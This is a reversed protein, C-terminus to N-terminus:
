SDRWDDEEPPQYIAETMKEMPNRSTKGDPSIFYSNPEPRVFDARDISGKTGFRMMGARWYVTAHVWDDRDSREWRYVLKKTNADLDAIRYIHSWHLWYDYWDDPSEVYQLPLRRDSFEDAVLSIMRNRDIDVKGDEDKKGYTVLEMTKRDRRYTALFVRGPYKARLARPATIDGGQDAIIIARPWRILFDEISAIEPNDPDHEWRDCEGYFFLGKINGVVYRLKVGSDVGIIVRGEQRNVDQTLNQYIQSQMVKNGGGVYPLGLVKNYFYDAPKDRYYELIEKANVWPCILLPIWYGSIKADKKGKKAVWTGHRRMDDTLVAKCDKCQFCERDSDISDPWSLYQAKKCAGCRIFWHKQDSQEWKKDVGNGPVSPHSFWWTRRLKSHQLRTSYQDVVEQNSADLEDHVNLDSSVMTAAKQTHTGRFHIVNDGVVKQEMTDKEPVWDQYVPNQAIIRNVKGGSFVRIDDFTPLTYIIDIHKNKALWLVANTATTTFTIQAAKFGVIDRTLSAMDKYIPLMFLHDKFDLPLGDETRIPQGDNGLRLHMVIRKECGLKALPTLPM